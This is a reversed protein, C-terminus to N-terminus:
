FQEELPIYTKNQMGSRLRIYSTGLQHGVAM